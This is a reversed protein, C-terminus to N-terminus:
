FALVLVFLERFLDADDQSSTDGFLQRVKNFDVLAM